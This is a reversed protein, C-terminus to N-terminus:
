VIFLYRKKLAKKKNFFIPIDYFDKNFLFNILYGMYGSLESIAFASLIGWMGYGMYLGLFWGWFIVYLFCLSECVFAGVYCNMGFHLQRIVDTFYIVLMAPAAVL